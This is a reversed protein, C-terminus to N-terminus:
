CCSKGAHKRHHVKLSNPDAYFKGCIQCKCPREGTHVQQHRKLTTKLYFQKNCKDCKFEKDEMHIKQHKRLDTKMFFDKSCVDCHFPRETGHRTEHKRLTSKDRFKLGCFKCTFPKEGTHILIHGKLSHEDSFQKDCVPCKCDVLDLHIKMHRALSTRLVYAKNCINCEHKGNQFTSPISNLFSCAKVHSIYSAKNQCNKSCIKCPLMLVPEEGNASEVPVPEPLEIGHPRPKKKSKKLTNSKNEDGLALEHAMEASARPFNNYLLHKFESGDLEEEEIGNAHNDTFDDDMEESVEICPLNPDNNNANHEDTYNESLSSQVVRKPDAAKRRRRKPNEETVTKLKLIIRPRCTYM